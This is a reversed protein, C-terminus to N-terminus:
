TRGVSQFLRNRRERAVEVRPDHGDVYRKSTSLYDAPLQWYTAGGLILNRYEASRGRPTFIPRIALDGKLNRFAEEVGVLQLYLGWLRAPDRAM